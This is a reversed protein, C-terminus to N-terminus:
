PQSVTTETNKFRIKNIKNKKVEPTKSDSLIKSFTGTMGMLIFVVGFYTKDNLVCYAKFIHLGFFLVCDRKGPSPFDIYCLITIIHTAIYRSLSAYRYKVWKSSFAVKLNQTVKSSFM